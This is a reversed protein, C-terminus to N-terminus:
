LRRGMLVLPTQDGPMTIHRQYAFGLKELLRISRGNDENAIALLQKFQLQERAYDIVATAAEQAYGKGNHAALFAFGIDEHQLAERRILGCMGIPELTEKLTVKWLGFGNDRYSKLPVNHIYNIADDISRVQKDGIFRLWAPENLLELIFPADSTDFPQILLRSTTAITM